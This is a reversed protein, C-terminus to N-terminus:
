PADGEIGNAQASVASDSSYVAITDAASMTIATIQIPAFNSALDGTSVDFILYDENAIDGVDGNKIHAVRINTFVDSRNTITLNISAEKSAPVKYVSTLTGTGPVDAADLQGKVTAM